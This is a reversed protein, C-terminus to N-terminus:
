NLYTLHPSISFFTEISIITTTLNCVLKVAYFDLSRSSIFNRSDILLLIAPSHIFVM